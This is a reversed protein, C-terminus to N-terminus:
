VEHRLEDVSVSLARYQQTWKLIVESTCYAHGFFMWVYMFYMFTRIVTVLTGYHQMAQAVTRFSSLPLAAQLFSVIANCYLGLLWLFRGLSSRSCLVVTGKGGRCLLHMLVSLWGERGPRVELLSLLLGIEGLSVILGCGMALILALVKTKWTQAM